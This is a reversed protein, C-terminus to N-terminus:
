NRDIYLLRIKEVAKVVDDKLMSSPCVLDGNYTLWLEGRFECVQYLSAATEAVEAKKEEETQGFYKEIINM